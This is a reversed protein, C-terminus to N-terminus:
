QFHGLQPVGRGLDEPLNFENPDNEDQLESLRLAEPM